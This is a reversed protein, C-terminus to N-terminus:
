HLIKMMAPSNTTGIIHKAHAFLDPFFNEFDRELENYHAQVEVIAGALGNNHHLRRSLRDYVIAIGTIHLYSGLWDQQIM